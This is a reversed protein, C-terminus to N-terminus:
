KAVRLHEGIWGLESLQPLSVGVQPFNDAVYTSPTLDFGVESIGAIHRVIRVHRGEGFFENGLDRANFIPYPDGQDRGVGAVLLIDNELDTRRGSTVLGGDPGTVQKPHILLVGVPESELNFAQVRGRRLRTAVVLDGDSHLTATRIGFELVLASNVPNLTNGLCLRLPPNVRRGGRHGHQRFGFFDVNPDIRAIHPDVHIPRGPGTPLRDVGGVGRHSQGM